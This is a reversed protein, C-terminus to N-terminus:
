GEPVLWDGAIAERVLGAMREAGATTLHVGDPLRVEVLDGQEDPLQQAFRGGDDLFLSYADLYAVGPRTSAELRQVENIHRVRQDYDAEAMVPVGVWYVRTASGLLLDMFSGVRRGYEADWEPTGFALWAGPLRLAQGDNAGLLVVVADPGRGALGAEAAAPWDFLDPRVLGSGKEYALTVAAWETVAGWRGLAAGATEALSDGLVWVRVPSEPTAPHWWGPLTTPTTTPAITSTTTSTTTSTPAVITTTAAVTTSTAPAGTTTSANTSTSVEPLTSVRTSAVTVGTGGGCGTGGLAGLALLAVARRWPALERASRPRDM